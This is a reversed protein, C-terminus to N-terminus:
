SGPEAAAGSLWPSPASSWRAARGPIAAGCGHGQLPAARKKRPLLGSIFPTLTPCRLCRSNAPAASGMRESSFSQGPSSNEWAAQGWSYCLGGFGGARRSFRLLTEQQRGGGPVPWGWRGSRGQLDPRAPSFPSSEAVPAGPPGPGAAAVGSSFWPAQTFSPPASKCSRAPGKPLCGRPPGPIPPEERGAQAAPAARKGEM